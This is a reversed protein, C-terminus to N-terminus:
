PRPRIEFGSVSLKSEPLVRVRVELDARDSALDFPMVVLAGSLAAADLAAPDAEVAAIVDTGKGAAVDVHLPGAHGPQVFGRLVLEYHGAPVQSYGGFMLWGARGTTGLGMGPTREGVESGIRPDDIGIRLPQAPAPLTAAAPVAASAAVAPATAVPAPAPSAAPAGADPAERCAGLALLGALAAGRVLTAVADSRHAPAGANGKTKRM